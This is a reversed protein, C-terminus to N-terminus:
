GYLRRRGELEPPAPGGRQNDAEKGKVSLLLPRCCRRYRVVVVIVIVVVVVDVLSYAYIFLGTNLSM